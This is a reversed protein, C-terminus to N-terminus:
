AMAGAQQPELHRRLAELVQDTTVDAPEVGM